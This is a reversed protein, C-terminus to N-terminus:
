RNWANFGSRYPPRDFIDFKETIRVLQPIKADYTNSYRNLLSKLLNNIRLSIEQFDTIMKRINM